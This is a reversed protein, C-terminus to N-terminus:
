TYPISVISAYVAQSSGGSAFVRYQGAPLDYNAASDVAIQGSNITLWAGSPGQFQFGFGGSYQTANVVFVSRGGSWTMPTSTTSGSGIAMNSGTMLQIARSPM